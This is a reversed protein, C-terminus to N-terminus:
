RPRIARSFPFGSSASSCRFREMWATTRLNDAVLEPSDARYLEGALMKDKESRM